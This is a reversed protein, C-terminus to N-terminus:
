KAIINTFNCFMENAFMRLYLASSYQDQDVLQNGHPDQFMNSLAFKDLKRMDPWEGKMEKERMGLLEGEYKFYDKVEALEQEDKETAPHYSTTMFVSLSKLRTILFSLENESLKRVLLNKIQFIRHNIKQHFILALSIKNVSNAFFVAFREFHKPESM